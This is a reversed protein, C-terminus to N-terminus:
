RCYYLELTVICKERVCERKKGICVDCVILLLPSICFGKEEEALLARASIEDKYFANLGKGRANTVVFRTRKIIFKRLQRRAVRDIAADVRQM